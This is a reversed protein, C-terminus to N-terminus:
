KPNFIIHIIQGGIAANGFGQIENQTRVGATELPYFFLNRMIRGIGQGPLGELGLRRRSKGHRSRRYQYMRISAYLFGQMITPTKDNVDVM